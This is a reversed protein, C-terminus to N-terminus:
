KRFLISYGVGKGSSSVLNVYVRIQQQYEYDFAEAAKGMLLNQKWEELSLAFM